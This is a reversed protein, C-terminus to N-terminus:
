DPRAAVRDTRRAVVPTRPHGRRGPHPLARVAAGSSTGVPTLATRKTFGFRIRLGNRKTDQKGIREVFEETTEPPKEKKPKNTRAM